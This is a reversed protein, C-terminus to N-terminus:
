AVAERVWVTMSSRGRNNWAAYPVARVPIPRRGLPREPYLDGSPEDAVGDGVLVDVGLADDRAVAFSAGRPLSIADLPADHDVGELCFVLPGRHLAVRGVTSTVRPDAWIRRPEMPLELEVVDGPSWRRSLRVYGGDLVTGVDLPEGVVRLVAGQRAWEPLRVALIFESEADAEIEIRVAGDHPYETSVRLGVATEDFRFRATGAVFLDVVAEHDGQAYAYYELSQTLRAFNPPCCAVGFWEKREVSGDSALPNGYFYCVGDASAGSLVANYLARELVDIYRGEGTLLAMRKAWLVLGIAACTEAYGSADPLEYPGAFGEISPDAGLGGTVYLKTGTLDDWLRECSERLAADDLEQALDAMASYLYMARVAHGVVERQERVPLHSQNYERFRQPHADRDPFVHGFYGPTGRRQAELEFYFPQTGRADILRAALDLYRREGTARYLKVLALEIEEHGDYGGEAAGGPAFERDILDALRRVIGLLTTKGTAAHHAVGAEILHGAVYLEHADRLDTFREGPRVVTFYTNLYGDEQQAGALAEIVEDVRRELAADPHTALSYSAAEIWKAVDSEWFVHPENPDGPKWAHALAEIQGGTRLMHEQQPLTATRVTERRPAWFADDIVVDTIPLSSRRTSAPM